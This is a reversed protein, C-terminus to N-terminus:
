KDDIAVDWGANGVNPFSAVVDPEITFVHEWSTTNSTKFIYVSGKAIRDGKAGVVIVGNCNVAVSWGFLASVAPTPSLLDLEFTFSDDDDKKEFVSAAGTNSDVGDTEPAGVVVYNGCISVSYGFKGLASSSSPTLKQIYKFQRSEDDHAFIYAAGDM